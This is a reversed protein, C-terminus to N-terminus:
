RNFPRSLVPTKRSQGLNLWFSFKKTLSLKPVFQIIKKKSSIKKSFFLQKKPFPKPIKKPNKKTVFKQTQSEGPGKCWFGMCFGCFVRNPRRPQRSKKSATTKGTKPKLDSLITFLENTQLNLDCLTTCPCEKM